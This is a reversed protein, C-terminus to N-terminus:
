CRRAKSDVVLYCEPEVDSLLFRVNGKVGAAVHEWGVAAAVVVGRSLLDRLRESLLRDRLGLKIGATDGLLARRREYSLKANLQAGPVSLRQLQHGDWPEKLLRGLWVMSDRNRGLHVLQAKSARAVARSALYEYPFSLLSVLASLEGAEHRPLGNRRIYRLLRGRLQRGRGHRFAIGWESMETATISSGLMLLLEKLTHYSQRDFHVTGVLALRGTSSTSPVTHSM